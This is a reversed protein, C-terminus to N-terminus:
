QSGDIAKKLEDGADELTAGVDAAADDLQRGAKEAPGEKECGVCLVIVMMATAITATLYM